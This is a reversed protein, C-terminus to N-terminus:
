DNRRYQLMWNMIDENFFDGAQNAEWLERFFVGYDIRHNGRTHNQTDNQTFLTLKQHQQEPSLARFKEVLNISRNANVTQDRLGHFVWFPMLKLAEINKGNEARTGAMTVVSAVLSNEYGNADLYDWVGMGGMSFGALYIRNENIANGSADIVFEIFEKVKQPQWNTGKPCQPAIIPVVVNPNWLNNKISGMGGGTDVKNIDEATVDSNGRSGSGHLYILIPYAKGDTGFGEPYRIVYGYPSSNQGKLSQEKIYNASSPIAALDDGTAVSVLQEIKPTEDTISDNNDTSKSECSYFFLFLIIVIIRNLITTKM